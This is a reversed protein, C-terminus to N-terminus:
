SSASVSENNEKNNLVLISVKGDMKEIAEKASATFAVVEIDIKSKISGNGLIKIGDRVKTIVGSLKLIKANITKAHRNIGNTISLVGCLFHNNSVKIIKYGTKKTETTPPPTKPMGSDSALWHPPKSSVNASAKTPITKAKGRPINSAKPLREM